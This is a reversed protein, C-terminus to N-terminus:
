AKRNNVLKAIGDSFRTKPLWGTDTTLETIDAVLHMPQHPYYDIAGFDVKSNPSIVSIIDNVYESMKRGQGSGLVYFKGDKGKNAIALFADGADDSYLYDWMQECKTIKPTNGAMVEKILYSIFTQSGDNQGYISLIRVWNFRLGIQSCLISAFKGASYKAIGYGSEPNVRLNPTLDVNTVGYEAQSGAGIFTTCGIRKALKCADLTYQINKIQVEVDDRQVGFTKEWALHIFTDYSGELTLSNYDCLDCEVIRVKDSQPLNGLRQSGKHVICTFSHGQALGQRIIATGISGTAGTIIINM